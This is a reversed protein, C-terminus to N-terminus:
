GPLEAVIKPDLLDRVEAYPVTVSYYPCESGVHSWMVALGKPTLFPTVLPPQPRKTHLPEGPDFDAPRLPMRECVLATNPDTTHVNVRKVLGAIGGTTLTAPRFVQEATLAKGTRLDVNVAVYPLEYDIPFCSQKTLAYRVSVLHPGRLGLEPQSNLVGPKTCPPKAEAYEQKMEGVAWELPDLLAANVQRQLAPDRVGSVQAYRANTLTVGAAPRDYAALAVRLPPPAKKPKHHSAIIAATGAGGVVIVGTAVAVAKVAANTGFVKTLVGRGTAAAAKGAAAKGAAAGGVHGAAGPAVSAVLGALPFLAALGAAAEALRRWGNSEWEPGYAATAASELEAAFEVAGPPRGEPEKALGRRVLEQVPPPAYAAPIEAYTHLARYAETTEGRYPTEGTVCEFFVCTAAYVDTSPSAPGGAWQEPAMYAPTGVVQGEAGSRLAIGFDILKSQGDGGVMVNPPKYDRHVVGARHAAGLGLLSGKLVALAAEPALRGHEGLLARLSVGDIAEMVIASGQPTEVYDFLRVVHPDALGRLIGAEARFETRFADDPVTLYKVAVHTGSEEHRALVVRGFGGRGLEKVTTYGPLSWDDV